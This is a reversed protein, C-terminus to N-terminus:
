SASKVSVAPIVTSRAIAFDAANREVASGIKGPHAPDAFVGFATRVIALDSRKTRQVPPTRFWLRSDATV